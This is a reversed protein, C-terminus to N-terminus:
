ENDEQKRNKREACQSTIERALVKRWPDGDNRHQGCPAYSAYGPYDLGMNSDDKEPGLAPPVPEGDEVRLPHRQCSRPKYTWDDSTRSESFAQLSCAGNEFAFVCRTEEFHAPFDPSNYRHPRVATKPGKVGHWEGDVIFVEPLHAFFDRNAEVLNTISEVEDAALYVGDYCCRAECRRFDCLKLSPGTQSLDRPQPGFRGLWRSVFEDEQFSDCLALAQVAKLVSKRHGKIGECRALARILNRGLEDISDGSELAILLKKANRHVTFIPFEECQREDEESIAREDGGVGVYFGLALAQLYHYRAEKAEAGARWLADAVVAGREYDCLAWYIQAYIRDWDHGIETALAAGEGYLDIASSLRGSEGSSVLVNALCIAAIDLAHPLHEEKALAYAQELLDRAEDVRGVGWLADGRNVMAIIMQEVNGTDRYARICREAYAAVQLNKELDHLLLCAKHDSAVRLTAEAAKGSRLVDEIGTLAELGARPDGAAWLVGALEIAAKLRATPTEALSVAKKAASLADSTRSARAAFRSLQVYYESTLEPEKSWERIMREERGFEGRSFAIRILAGRLADRGSPDLSSTCALVDEVVRELRGPTSLAVSVVADALREGHHEVLFTLLRVARDVGSAGHEPQTARQLVTMLNRRLVSRRLADGHSEIWAVCGALLLDDATSVVEHEGLLDPELAMLGHGVDSYLRQLDGLPVRVDAPAKRTSYYQDALLLETASDLSPVGGVCTVQALGRRLDDERAESLEPIIKYWHAHELELIRDLLADPSLTVNQDIRLVELLARMQLALPRAFIPNQVENILVSPEVTGRDMSVDLRKAFADMTARLFQNRTDGAPIGSLLRVNGQPLDPGGFVDDLPNRHFLSSWWADSRALLVLRVNATREPPRRRLKRCLNVVEDSQGEAYDIACLLGVYNDSSLVEDLALSRLRDEQGDSADFPPQLFGALWGRERLKKALEIMLRTKGMGGPGHLVMGAHRRATDLCWAAAAALHGTVDVYPVVGQSAHLLESPSLYHYEASTDRVKSTLLDIGYQDRYVDYRPTIRDPVASHDILRDLESISVSLAAALPKRLRAVPVSQGSEWRQITYPRVDLHTALDLQSWGVM